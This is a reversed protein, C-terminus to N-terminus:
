IWSEEFGELRKVVDVVFQDAVAGDILRHDFSISLNCMHRIAITDQGDVEIVMPRKKIAGIGLIAVQPQPIVPTGYLSGFVGPNTVTFTGGAIEEPKLKKARARTALDNMRKAIGALNLDQAQHIVPVILGWDLAVACGLNVDKHYLIQNRDASISANLEPWNQLARVAAELFFVTFSLNVGHKDQFANKHKKRVRAVHTMDCEFFSTVHASIRKSAIMHEVTRKRVNNMPEIRDGEVPRPYFPTLDVGDPWPGAPASMAVAPTAAPAAARQPGGSEIFALIDKKTVRGGLGSGAIQTLDTIGNEKAIKRVVPSSRVRRMEEPTPLGTRADGATAMLGGAAPAAVATAAGASADGGAAKAEAAAPAASGGTEEGAAGIKAVVTNVPVTQGEPVLVELLVGSAPAPIEADVKDTSIEFLTEDKEVADGVGKCWKTLTGEAISEGMQPMIVESAM